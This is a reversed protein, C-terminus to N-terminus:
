VRGGERGGRWPEGLVEWGGTAGGACRGSGVMGGSRRLPERTCRCGVRGGSGGHSMFLARMGGERRIGRCSGRVGQLKRMM